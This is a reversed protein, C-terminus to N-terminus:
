NIAFDGLIFYLHLFSNGESRQDTQELARLESAKGTHSVRRSHSPWILNSTSKIRLCPSHASGDPHEIHGLLGANGLFNGPDQAKSTSLILVGPLNRM